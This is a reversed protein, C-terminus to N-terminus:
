DRWYSWSSDFVDEVLDQIQADGQRMPARMTSPLTPAGPLGAAKYVPFSPTLLLRGTDCRSSPTTPRYGSGPLSWVAQFGAGGSRTLRKSRTTGASGATSRRFINPYGAAKTFPWM